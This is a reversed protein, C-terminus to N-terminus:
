KEVNFNINHILLKIIKKNAIGKNPENNRAKIGLFLVNTILIMPKLKELKLKRKDKNSHTQNSLDKPYKWNTVWTCQSGNKFMLKVKPTSPIDNNKMRSVVNNVNNHRKILQFLIVKLTLSYTIEKKIM